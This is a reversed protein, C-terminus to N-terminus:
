SPDGNKGVSSKEGGNAFYKRSLNLSVDKDVFHKNLIRWAVPGVCRWARKWCIREM